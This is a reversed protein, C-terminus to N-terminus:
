VEGCMRRELDKIIRAEDWELIDPERSSSKHEGEVEFEICGTVGKASVDLRVIYSVKKPARQPTEGNM